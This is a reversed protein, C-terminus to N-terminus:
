VSSALMGCQDCEIGHNLQAGIAQDIKKTQENKMAELHTRCVRVM